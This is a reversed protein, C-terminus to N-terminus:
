RLLLLASNKVWVLLPSPYIVLLAVPVVMAYLFVMAPKGFSIRETTEVDGRLFMNRIVKVYYFVSVVSNLVGIVAIGVYGAQIVPIFLYWKGIFGAFPPMGTLSLLLITMAVAIFPNKYVIGNWDEMDDSGVKNAILQVVYFAGFNMLLYTIFYFMVGELGATTMVMVGMLMYGCHAISSYALMRKVNTQWIAILNGVTMTIVAVIGLTYQWDFTGLTNWVDQTSTATNVFGAGIFRILVAFGAAKSVVSLLATTAVPAGEYVDPTWFHFPVASIKYAIGAFILLGATVTALNNGTQGSLVSNIISLDLSGTLGFLMSMGYIMLGSALSGYIVYKLSAESSRKVEKTYGALVYSSLSMTEFALYIMILNSASSLLMMGITMGILLIYFEGISNKGNNLENANFTFVTCIIAGLLILIKFFHSFPDIVLLGSFTIASTGCSNCIALIATVVFAILTWYGTIKPQRKCIVDIFIAIVLSIILAIEPTFLSLNM